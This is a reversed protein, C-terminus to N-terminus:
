RTGGRILRGTMGPRHVAVKGDRGRELGPASDQCSHPQRGGTKSDRPQSYFGNRSSPFSGEAPKHEKHLEPFPSSKFVPICPHPLPWGNSPHQLSHRSFAGDKALGVPFAGPLEPTRIRPLRSQGSPHLPVSEAQLSSQPCQCASRLSLVVPWWLPLTIPWFGGASSPLM